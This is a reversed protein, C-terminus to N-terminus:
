PVPESALPQVIMGQKMKRAEMEKIEESEGQQQILAPLNQEIQVTPDYLGKVTTFLTQFPAAVQVNFVMPIRAIQRTLFNKTAGQGQAIGGFRIDTVMEGDLAGNLVISLDDYKLARLAGFAFNAMAGLNRNSLEGVYEVTGGGARSDIRGGVVRGGVGGFEVPLSGDFVGTVNLNEFAFRQLFHAADIGVLDFSLHRTEEASFNLTAPHMELKGGALPWEGSEIRVQQNGLLAYEIWGDFISIGPNVEKIYLKQQPRTRLAILDDFIMAGTLGTVPGFAAALNADATAFTGGSTVGSADWRIQGEGVIAADVEAVVGLALRTLQDPQFREDFRLEKVRLQADGGSGDFRHVIDVDVIDRGTKREKLSAAATIKGGAFRLQADQAILPFFRVDPEADTVVLQSNLSLAGDRWQWAGNMETLNLPVAGIRGEAGSLTGAMGGPVAKGEIGEAVFSTPVTVDSGSQPYEILQVAANQVSWKANSLDYSSRGSNVTVRNGAGRGELAIGPIHLQGKLGDPGYSLLDRGAASCLQMQPAAFNYGSVSIQRARLSHCGGDLALRGSRSVRGALPLIMDEIRGDALPGSVRVMTQFRMDGHDSGTVGLPALAISADGAAYPEMEILGSFRSDAGRELALSGNPLGGGVLSWRGSATWAAGKAGAKYLIQSQPASTLAAGSATNLAIDTAALQQGHGDRAFSIKASGDMAALAGSLYQGGQKLLPELPTAVFGDSARGISRRLAQSVSANSFVLKGDLMQKGSSIDGALKMSLQAATFQPSAVSAIEGRLSVHTAKSSGNFESSLAMTRASVGGAQLMPASLGLKGDWRGLDASLSADIDLVPQKLAVGGQTDCQVGSFRLPGTLRPQEGRITLAGYFRGDEAACGGGELRPMALALQGDFGNRLAGAGSAAAGMVGWPTDITARADRMVLNFQPMQFPKKSEPDSFKDLEGFSLKGDKYRGRLRFGDAEISEITPGAWGWSLKVELVRATLDPAKPDGVVLNRLRQSHLGVRELTYHAAIGRQELQQRVIHDSIAIREAWLTAGAAVIVGGIIWLASRSRLYSLARSSRSPAPAIDDDDDMVMM